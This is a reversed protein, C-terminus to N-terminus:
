KVGAGMVMECPGEFGDAGEFQSLEEEIEEWDGGM